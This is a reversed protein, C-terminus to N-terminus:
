EDNERDKSRDRFHYDESDKRNEHRYGVLLLLISIIFVIGAVVYAASPSEHTEPWNAYFQAFALTAAFILLLAYILKKM